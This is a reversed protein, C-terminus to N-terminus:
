LGKRRSDLSDVLLRGLGSLLTRIAAQKRRKSAQDFVKVFLRRAQEEASGDGLVRRLKRRAEREQAPTLEKSPDM